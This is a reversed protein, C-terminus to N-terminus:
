KKEQRKLFFTITEIFQKKRAEDMGFFEVALGYRPLHRSTDGQCRKVEANFRMYGQLAPLQVEVELVDGIGYSSGSYFFCGGESIDNITTMEWKADPVGKPRFRVMFSWGVRPFRRQNAGKSEKGM